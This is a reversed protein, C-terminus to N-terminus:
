FSFWKLARRISEDWYEWTHDGSWEEYTLDVGLKEAYIRFPTNYKYVADETGCCQYLKPVHRDSAKLRRLLFFLDEESNEIKDTGGFLAVAQRRVKEEGGFVAVSTERFDPSKGEFDFLSKIDLVGSFSAAAAFMEPKRLAWKFAGYGGMSLGAVFNEERLDSLPFYHRMKIPLEESLYTWYRDGYFMDTYFSKEVQPMVVAIGNNQAYKEIGTRRVWKTCDDGIGHLLYLTKFPSKNAEFAAEEPSMDPLVVYVSTSTALVDSKFKFDVVAM